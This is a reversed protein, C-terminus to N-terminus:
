SVMSTIVRVKCKILSMYSMRRKASKMVTASRRLALPMLLLSIAFEGTSLEKATLM